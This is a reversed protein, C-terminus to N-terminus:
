SSIFRTTLEDSIQMSPSYGNKKIFAVLFDYVRQRSNIEQMEEMDM